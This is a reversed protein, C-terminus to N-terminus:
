LRAGLLPWTKTGSCGGANTLTTTATGTIVHSTTITASVQLTVGVGDVSGSLSFAFNGQDDPVVATPLSGAFRLLEGGACMAGADEDTFVITADVATVAGGAITLTVPTDYVTKDMKCVYTGDWGGALPVTMDITSPDNTGGDVMSGFVVVSGGELVELRCRVNTAYPRKLATFVDNLQRPEFADLTFTDQVTATTAPYESGDGLFMTLRVTTATATANMFGVNTRWTPFPDGVEKVARVGVVDTSAGAPIADDLSAAAFFQGATGTGNSGQVAVDYIRSTVAVPQTALLRLGGVASSLGFLSLVADDIERVEGANVDLVAPEPSPAPNPGRFHFSVTVSAPVDGPNYIWVDTHFESGPLAGAAHAVSPLFLEIAPHVAGRAPPALVLLAIFAVAAIGTNRGVTALERDM